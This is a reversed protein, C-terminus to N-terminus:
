PSAAPGRPSPRPEARRHENWYTILQAERHYYADRVQEPVFGALTHNYELVRPALRSERVLPADSALAATVVVVALGAVLAGLAAGIVGGALRDAWNMHVVRVLEALKAGGWAVLVIVVLLIAIYGIAAGVEPRASFARTIYEGARQYYVSALYVAAILAILSAAIRLIGRASGYIAGIAILGAILYDLGNM